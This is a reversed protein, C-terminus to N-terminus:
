PNPVNRRGAACQFQRDAQRTHLVIIKRFAEGVAQLSAACATTITLNEGHIGAQRAVASVATNPLFRLMWLAMLDKRDIEGKRIEPFEGGIDLNPGTGMFLGAESVLKKGIGANKIAEMTSAVCFQTGRNLYRRDKFRGTFDKINFDRIPSVVVDDDFLAREFTVSGKKLNDVIQKQSFGLSSCVGISTIAVRKPM